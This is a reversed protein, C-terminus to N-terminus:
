SANLSRPPADAYQRIPDQSRDPGLVIGADLVIVM